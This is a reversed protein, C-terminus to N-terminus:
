FANDIVAKQDSSFDQINEESFTLVKGITYDNFSMKKLYISGNLNIFEVEEYDGPTYQADIDCLNKTIYATVNEQSNNNLNKFIFKGGIGNVCTGASGIKTVSDGAFSYSSLLSFFSLALIVNKM